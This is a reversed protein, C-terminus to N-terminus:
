DNSCRSPESSMSSCRHGRTAPAVSPVGDVRRSPRPWGDGVPDPSGAAISATSTSWTVVPLRLAEGTAAVGLNEACFIGIIAIAGAQIATLNCFVYMFGLPAGFADRLIEYQAGTRPYLAGLEAFTLAGLLAIVGGVGWTLLALSESGALGAVHSPTLFIGVGIIAGVVVCTADFPGLVRRLRPRDRPTAM